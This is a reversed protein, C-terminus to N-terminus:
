HQVGPEKVLTALPSSSWWSTSSVGEWRGGGGREWGGKKEGGGDRRGEGRDREKRGRRNRGWSNSLVKGSGLGQDTSDVTCRICLSSSGAGVKVFSDLSSFLSTFWCCLPMLTTGSATADIGHRPSLTLTAWTSFPSTPLLHNWHLTGCEFGLPLCGYCVQSQM